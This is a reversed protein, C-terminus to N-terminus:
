VDQQGPFRDDISKTTTKMEDLSKVTNDLRHSMQDLRSEITLPLAVEQQPDVEVKPSFKSMQVQGDCPAVDQGSSVDGDSFKIIGTSVIDQKVSDPIEVEAFQDATVIGGCRSRASLIAEARVDGIGHITKLVEATVTEIHLQKAEAM